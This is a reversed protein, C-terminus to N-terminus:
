VLLDKMAKKIGDISMFYMPVIDGIAQITTEWWLREPEPNLWVSYPFKEKMERLSDIGVLRSDLLSQSKQSYFSYPNIASSFLEYPAMWADGVYIIRTDPRFKQLFKKLSYSKRLYPDEYFEYSFINHFYFSYFEKFHQIKNAASFLHSVKQSHPTMSGGIDMLLVLKLNNKRSKEEIIEIDGGNDSTKQITKPVHLEARGEKKLIRLYKLAIQIRRTDLVEDSRYPRFKRDAWVAVGTRNGSEGGIRIGQENFGGNGFPSTGGTGIWTDGGDHRGKQRALRDKLEELLREMDYFPANKKREEDLLFKKAKELWSEILSFSKQDQYKINGFMESFAIDYFDYFKIDKVLCLKGVRYLKELTLFSDKISYENLVKLFDLLEGTGVPIGKSRLLYFFPIFM